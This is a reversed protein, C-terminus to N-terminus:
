KIKPLFHTIDLDFTVCYQPQLSNRFVQYHMARDWTELDILEMPQEEEIIEKLNIDGTNYFKQQIIDLLQIIVIGLFFVQM